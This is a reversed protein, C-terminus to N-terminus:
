EKRVMIGNKPIEPDTKDMFPFLKFRLSDRNLSYISYHVTVSPLLEIEVTLEEFQWYGTFHSLNKQQTSNAKDIYQYTCTGKYRNPDTKNLQWSINLLSDQYCWKGTLDSPIDKLGMWTEPQIIGSNVKVAFAVRWAGNMAIILNSHWHAFVGRSTERDDYLLHLPVDKYAIDQMRVLFLSDNRIEWTAIYGRYCGTSYGKNQVTVLEGNKLPLPATFDRMLFSAGKYLLRDPDQLTAYASLALLEFLLLIAIRRMM